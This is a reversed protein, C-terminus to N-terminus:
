ADLGVALNYITICAGEKNFAKHGLKLAVPGGM